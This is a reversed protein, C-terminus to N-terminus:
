NTLFFIPPTIVQVCQYFHPTVKKTLSEISAYLVLDFKYWLLNAMVDGRRIVRFIHYTVFAESNVVMELLWIAAHIANQVKM